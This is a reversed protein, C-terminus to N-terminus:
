DPLSPENENTPVARRTIRKVVLTAYSGRPLDFHLTLRRRGEHLADAGHEAQLNQPFCWAPREGKSFFLKRFGRLKFQESQLGEDALVRDYYPKRSDDDALVTRASHLPLTLARLEERMSADLRQPMPAEGLRLKVGILDGGPVHDSVWGVLMHNWLHSQYASLYLMRLEAPLRELAGAFDDPYEALHAIIARAPGKPVLQRLRQWHGWEKRLTAKEKKRASREFAYPATLARKLADEYHGLIIERALFAEGDAVSGFRQDDYYNPVGAERVEDLSRRASEIQQDTMNRITIAFRNAQIQESTYAEAVQGLYTLRLNAHTLKRQPGRYITLFQTTEAHRDKLGGVSVRRADLQWRRRIIQVADPTTWGQKELRYLAFDGTAGAVASTLEEVKFDAAKQKIHM